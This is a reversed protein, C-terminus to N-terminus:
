ISYGPLARSKSFTVKLIALVFISFSFAHGRFNCKIPTEFFHFNHWKFVIKYIVKWTLPFPKTPPPFWRYINYTDKRLWIPKPGVFCLFTKSHWEMDSDLSNTSMKTINYVCNQKVKLCKSWIFRTVNTVYKDTVKLRFKIKLFTLLLELVQYSYFINLYTFSLYWM